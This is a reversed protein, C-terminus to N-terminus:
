ANTASYQFRPSAASIASAIRPTAKSFNPRVSPTQKVSRVVPRRPPDHLLRLESVLAVDGVRALRVHEVADGSHPLFVAISPIRGPPPERKFTM